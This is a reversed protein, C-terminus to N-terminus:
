RSGARIVAGLVTPDHFGGTPVWAEAATAVAPHISAPYMCVADARSRQGASKRGEPRFWFGSARSITSLRERAKAALGAPGGVVVITADAAM